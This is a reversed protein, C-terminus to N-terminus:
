VAEEVRYGVGRVTEIPAPKGPLELKRRLNAVHVDVVNSLGDYHADWVAELLATRTVVEGKRDLLYHLLAFERATLPVTVGARRVTHAAPDLEIDAATLLPSRANEPRRLLARVRAGLEAFDFPKALYDDAGADLGLVKDGTTDRATLILVRTSNGSARLERCLTLGDGDPLGLDLVVLHYPNIAAARRAGALTRELDVAHGDEILGRQVVGGLSPDDEVLLVRM